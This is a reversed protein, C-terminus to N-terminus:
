AKGYLELYQPILTQPSFSKKIIAPACHNIRKRKEIDQMAARIKQAINRTELSCIWGLDTEEVFGSLAVERSLLVPTGVHLSEIM